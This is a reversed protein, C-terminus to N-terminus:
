KLHTLFIVHNGTYLITALPFSSRSLQLITSRVVLIAIYNNITIGRYLNENRQFQGRQHANNVVWYYLTLRGIGRHPNSLSTGYTSTGVELKEEGNGGSSIWLSECPMVSKEITTELLDPFM